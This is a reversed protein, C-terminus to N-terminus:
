KKEFAHLDQNIGEGGEKGDGGLSFLDFPADGSGPVRYVFKQDWADTPMERVYGGRQYKKEDVYTPRTMLDELNEPFRGCDLKFNELAEDVEKLKAKTAVIRAKDAKDGIVKIAIGAMVAIIVVVVMIEMLTFGSARRLRKKM